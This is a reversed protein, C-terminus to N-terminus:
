SFVSLHTGSIIQKTSWYHPLLLILLNLDLLATTTLFLSAVLDTISFTHLTLSLKLM